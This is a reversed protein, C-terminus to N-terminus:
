LSSGSNREVPVARIPQTTTATTTMSQVRIPNDGGMPTGGIQIENSGRRQYNFFNM